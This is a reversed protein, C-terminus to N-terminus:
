HCVWFFMFENRVANAACMSCIYNEISVSKYRGGDSPLTSNCTGRRAVLIHSNRVLKVLYREMGYDLKSNFNSCLSIISLNNNFTIVWQDKLRLKVADKFWTLDRFGNAIILDRVRM